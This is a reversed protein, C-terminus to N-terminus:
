SHTTVGMKPRTNRLKQCLPHIFPYTSPRSVTSWISSPRDATLLRKERAPYSVQAIRSPTASAMCATLVDMESAHTTRVGDVVSSPAGRWQALHKLRMRVFTEGGSWLAWADRASLCTPLMRWEEVGEGADASRQKPRSSPVVRVISSRPTPSHDRREVAKQVGM